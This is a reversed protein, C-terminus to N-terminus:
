REPALVTQRCLLSRLSHPRPRSVTLYPLVALLHHRYAPHSACPNGEM